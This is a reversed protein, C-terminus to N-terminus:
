RWSSWPAKRTASSSSHNEPITKEHQDIAALAIDAGESVSKNIGVIQEPTTLATGVYTDPRVPNIFDKIVTDVLGQGPTSQTAGGIILADTLLHLPASVSGPVLAPRLAAVGLVGTLRGLWRKVSRERDSM